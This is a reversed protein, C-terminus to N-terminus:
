QYNDCDVIVSYELYMQKEIMGNDQIVVTTRGQGSGYSSRVGITFNELGEFIMDPLISVQIEQVTDSLNFTVDSSYFLFDTGNDATGAELVTSATVPVQNSGIKLIRLTLMQVSDRETVEYLAGDFIFQIDTLLTVYISIFLFYYQFKPSHLM